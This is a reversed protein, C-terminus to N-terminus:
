KVSWSVRLNMNVNAEGPATALPLPGAHPRLGVTTAVAEFGRRRLPFCHGREVLSLVLQFRLDTPFLKFLDILSIVPTLAILSSSGM